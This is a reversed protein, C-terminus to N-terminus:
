HTHTPIYSHKCTQIYTHMFAQTSTHRDTHQVGANIRTCCICFCVCAGNLLDDLLQLLQPQYNVCVYMCMHISTHIHSHTNTCSYTHKCAQIYTCGIGSPTANEFATEFSLARVDRKVSVHCFLRELKSSEFIDGCTPNATLIYIHVM